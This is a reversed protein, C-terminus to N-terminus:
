HGTAWGYAVVLVDLAFMLALPDRRDRRWRRWLVPLGLLALWFRGPMGEYLQHHIADVSSDGALALVDYFPWALATAAAAA